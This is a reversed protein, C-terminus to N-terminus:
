TEILTLFANSASLYIFILLRAFHVRTLNSPPRRFPVFCKNITFTWITNSRGFCIQKNFETWSYSTLGFTLLAWQVLKPTCM